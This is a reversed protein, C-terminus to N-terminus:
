LAMKFGLFQENFEKIIDAPLFEYHELQQLIEAPPNFAPNDLTEQPLLAKASENPTAYGVYEANKAANEPRLMFNIFAYAGAENKSTSPIAFNDTWVASGGKPVIYVINPNDAIVSAADGSYGMGIPAEGLRMLPKIEDTLVARVNPALAKLYTGAIALEGPDQSNLSYGRAQLAMGLTERHGDLVLISNKFEPKWLDSWNEITAPDVQETNVMIGFTGWFYPLSYQNGPDFAHNLLWPTLHETGELRSYDLPKLLNQNKLRAVISESPFVLDYPTGGQKLKAEMADNSDFTEYIVRYNSEEEFATILEPDIYDGWNFIYLPQREVGQATTQLSQELHHRIGWLAAIVGVLIVLGQVLRRM